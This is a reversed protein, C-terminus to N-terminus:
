ENSTNFILSSSKRLLQPQFEDSPKAGVNNGM